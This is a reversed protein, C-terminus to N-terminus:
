EVEVEIPDGNILDKFQFDFVQNATKSIRYAIDDIVICREVYNISQGNDNTFVKPTSTFNIKM